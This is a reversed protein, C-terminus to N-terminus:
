ADTTRPGAIARASAHDRFQRRYGSSIMRLLTWGCDPLQAYRALHGYRRFSPRWELCSSWPLIAPHQIQPANAWCGATKRMTKTNRADKSEHVWSLLDCHEIRM